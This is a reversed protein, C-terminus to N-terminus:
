RRKFTVYLKKLGRLVMSPHHRFDNREGDFALDRTRGLLAAFTQVMEERALNAGICHHIGAGFALHTGANRRACDLADPATYQAPDRNAAAFRLMIRAGAPLKVGGIETDRKVVRFLGQVPAELRLVENAFTRIRALDAGSPDAQGSSGSELSRTLLAYQDPNRILLEVGAALANTTTENGAVLFQQTLSLMEPTSLPQGDTDRAHVMHSLLDDRPATRRAELEAVIFQQFEGILRTCELLREDSILMGLPEVSADSWTKIRPALEHPLGLMDAIVRIPVPIALSAVIDCREMAIFEDIAADAIARIRASLAAISRPRFPDDVLVRFRTHSPPDNTVLTNVTPYLTRRLAALAPPPPRLSDMSQSDVSSFVETNRLIERMLRYTSCIYFGLQADYHIPEAHLAHHYADPRELVEADRLSARALLESSNSQEMIM